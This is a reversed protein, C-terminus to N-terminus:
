ARSPEAAPARRKTFCTPRPRKLYAIGTPVMWAGLLALNVRGNIGAPHWPEVLYHSVFGNRYPARGAAELLHNEVVTLPCDSGTLNIAVTVAIAGLHAPMLKPWRRALPGGVILVAIFSGHVVATLRSLGLYMLHRERGASSRDGRGDDLARPREAHQRLHPAHRRSRMVLYESIEWGISTAAGIGAGAIWLLSRDPPEGPRRSALYATIGWCLVMWNAVHLVGDTHAIHDYAGTANGLTDLLFPVTLAIDLQHPFAPGRRRWGIPVVLAPALFLPLRFAMGKGKFGGVSPFLAGTLLLLALLAKAAWLWSTPSRDGELFQRNSASVSATAM